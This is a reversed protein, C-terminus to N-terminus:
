NNVTEQYRGRWSCLSCDPSPAPVSCLPTPVGLLVQQFMTCKLGVSTTASTIKKPPIGVEKKLSSMQYKVEGGPTVLKIQEWKASSSVSFGLAPSLFMLSIAPVM